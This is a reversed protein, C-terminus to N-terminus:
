IKSKLYNVFSTCSLLFYKADASTLNPEDMMAHRIGDDDNTYGYLKSFGAKLAPHLKDKKELEKLADSLTAKEKETIIRAMSEVASISEKISNRYDPNKRDALLELARQLHASVPAFTSDKLAEELMEIEQENTIDVFTGSVLKFGSLERELIRNISQNLNEHKNDYWNVVFELFDYVEYWSGNFFYERIVELIQFGYQPRLDVPRKFYNAWLDRSFPRIIPDHGGYPEIFGRSNWIHEDLVNWLSNRLNKNMGETQITENVPIYGKRKSFKKM